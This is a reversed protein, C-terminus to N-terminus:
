QLKTNKQIFEIWDKGIIFIMGRNSRRFTKIKGSKVLKRLFSVKLGFVSIDKLTYIGDELIKMFMRFFKTTILMPPRQTMKEEIRM